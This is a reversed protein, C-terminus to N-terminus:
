PHRKPHWPRPISSIVKCGDNAGHQKLGGTSQWLMGMSISRKKRERASRGSGLAISSWLAVVPPPGPFHQFSPQRPQRAALARSERGGAVRCARSCLSRGIPPDGLAQPAGVVGQCDTHAADHLDAALPAALSSPHLLPSLGASPPLLCRGGCSAVGSGSSGGNSGCTHKSQGAM